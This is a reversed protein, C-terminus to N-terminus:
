WPELDIHCVTFGELQMLDVRILDELKKLENTLALLFGSDNQMLWDEAQSASKFGQMTQLLKSQNLEHLNLRQKSLAEANFEVEAKFRVTDPGLCETKIDYIGIVTPRSEIMNVIRKVTNISLTRGVLASQSRGLLFFSVLIVSAAMVASAGLDYYPNGTLHSLALGSIGLAAGAVGTSAELLTAVPMMDRGRRIYDLPTMKEKQSLKKIEGSATRCAMLELSASFLLMAIPLIPAISAVPILSSDRKLLEFFFHILPLAGGVSLLVFFSRDACVDRLRSYGYPHLIDAPRCSSSSITWFRYAYNLVDAFSHSLDAFIAHSGTMLFVFGKATTIVVNSILGQQISRLGSIDRQGSPVISSRSLSRIIQPYPFSEERNTDKQRYGFIGAASRSESELFVNYRSILHLPSRHKLLSVRVIDPLSYKRYAQTSDFPDEKDVYRVTELDSDALGFQKKALLSGIWVHDPNELQRKFNSM